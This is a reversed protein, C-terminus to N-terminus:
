CLPWPNKGGDMQTDNAPPQAEGRERRESFVDGDPETM